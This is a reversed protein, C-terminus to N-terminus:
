GGRVLSDVDVKWRPWPVIGGARSWYSRLSRSPLGVYLCGAPLDWAVTSGPVALLALLLALGPRPTEAVVHAAPRRLSSEM